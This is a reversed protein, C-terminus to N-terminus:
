SFCKCIGSYIAKAIKEHNNENSIFNDDKENSLFGMEFLVVPVKSWNFGTMDGKLFVGRNEIGLSNCYSNLIIEGYQKSLDAIKETNENNKEPVLVSAGNVKNDDFSDAHIRIVLDANVDNGVKAREINGLSMNNDTKTMIVNFGSRELLDKLILSIDMCTKYEPVKSYDGVTGGEDKIKLVKSNPAMPEKNLDGKESHGPDIVVTINEKNSEKEEEKSDDNYVKIDNNLNDKEENSNNYIEENTKNNIRLNENSNPKFCGLFMFSLLLVLLFNLKKM